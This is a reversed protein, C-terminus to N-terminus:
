NCLLDPIDSHDVALSVKNLTQQNFLEADKLVWATSANVSQTIEYRVGETVYICGHPTIGTLM